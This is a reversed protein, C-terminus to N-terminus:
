AGKRPAFALALGVLALVGAGLLVKNNLGSLIEGSNGQVLTRGDSDQGTPRVSYDDILNLGQNLRAERELSQAIDRDLRGQELQFDFQEKKTWVEFGKDLIDTFVTM